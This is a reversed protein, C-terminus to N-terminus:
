LTRPFFSLHKVICTLFFYLFIMQSMEKFPKKFFFFQVNKIQLVPDPNLLDHQMRILGYSPIKGDRVLFFCGFVHEILEFSRILFGPVRIQCCVLLAAWLTLLLSLLVEKMRFMSRKIYKSLILWFVSTSSLSDIFFLFVEASSGMSKLGNQVSISFLFIICNSIGVEWKQPSVFSIYVYSRIRFIM